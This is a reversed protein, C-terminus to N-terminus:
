LVGPGSFVGEGDVKHQQQRPQRNCLSRFSRSSYSSTFRGAFSCSPPLFNGSDAAPAQQLSTRCSSCSCCCCATCPIHRHDRKCTSSSHAAAACNTFGASPGPPQVAPLHDRRFWCLVAESPQLQKGTSECAPDQSHSRQRSLVDRAKNCSVQHLLECAAHCCRAHDAPAGALRSRLAATTWSASPHQQQHHLPQSFEQLQWLSGRAAQQQIRRRSCGHSPCVCAKCHCVIYSISRTAAPLSCCLAAAAAAAAAAAPFEPYM